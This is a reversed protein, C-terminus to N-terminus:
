CRIKKSGSGSGPPIAKTLFPPGTKFDRVAGFGLSVNAPSHISDRILIAHRADVNKWRGLPIGKYKRAKIDLMYKKLQAREQETKSSKILESCIM